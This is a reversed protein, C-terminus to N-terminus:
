RIRTIDDLQLILTKRFESKLFEKRMLSVQPFKNKLSSKVFGRQELDQKVQLLLWNTDAKFDIKIEEVHNVLEILSVEEKVLLFKLIVDAMTFYSAKAITAGRAGGLRYVRVTEIESATTASSTLSQSRHTKSEDRIRDYPYGKLWVQANM